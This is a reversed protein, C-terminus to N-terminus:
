GLCLLRKDGLLMGEDREATPGELFYVLPGHQVMPQGHLM